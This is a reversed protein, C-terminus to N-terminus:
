SIRVPMLARCAKQGDVTDVIGLPHTGTARGVLRTGDSSALLSKLYGPNFGIAPKECDFEGSLDVQMEMGAGVQIVDMRVGQPGASFRVPTVNDPLLPLMATLADDLAPRDLGIVTVEKWIDGILSQWDPFSGDVLRVIWVESIRDEVVLRVHELREDIAIAVKEAKAKVINALVRGPVLVDKKAEMFQFVPDDLQVVSMRYSDTACIQDGRICVATLLPRSDDTSVFPVVYELVSQSLSGAFTFYPDPTLPLEALDFCPLTVRIGTQLVLRETVGGVSAETEITAAGKGRSAKGLTATAVAATGPTLVTAPFRVTLTTELDTTQLAVEGWEHATITVQALAPLRGGILKSRKLADVLDKMEFTFKM